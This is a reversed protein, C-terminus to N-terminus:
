RMKEFSIKELVIILEVKDNSLLKNIASIANAFFSLSEYSDREM